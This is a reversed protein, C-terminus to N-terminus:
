VSETATQSRANQDINIVIEVTVDNRRRKEGVGIAWYCLFNYVPDRSGVPANVGGVIQIRLKAAIVQNSM